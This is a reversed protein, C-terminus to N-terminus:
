AGIWHAMGAGAILVSCRTSAFLAGARAASISLHYPASPM